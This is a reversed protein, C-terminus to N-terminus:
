LFMDLYSIWKQCSLALLGVFGAGWFWSYLQFFSDSVIVPKYYTLFYKNM